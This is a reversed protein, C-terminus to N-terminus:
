SYLSHVRDWAAFCSQQELSFLVSVIGHDEAGEFFYVGRAKSKWKGGTCLIRQVTIKDRIM